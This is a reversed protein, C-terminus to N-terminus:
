VLKPILITKKKCKSLNFTNLIYKNDENIDSDNAIVILYDNKAMNISRKRLSYNNIWPVGSKILEDMAHLSNYGLDNSLINHQQNLEKIMDSQDYFSANKWDCIFEYILKTGFKQFDKYISNSICEACTAGGSIITMCPINIHWEQIIIRKIENVLIEYIRHISEVTPHMNLLLHNSAVICVDTRKSYM